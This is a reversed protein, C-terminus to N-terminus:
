DVSTTPLPQGNWPAQYSPQMAAVPVFLKQCAVVIQYYKDGSESTGIGLVWYTGASITVDAAPKGPAWYAQADLPLDGVVADATYAIGCSTDVPAPEECPDFRIFLKGGTALKGLLPICCAPEEFANSVKANPEGSIKSPQCCAAFLQAVPKAANEQAQKAQKCGYLANVSYSIDVSGKPAASAAFGSLLSVFVVLCLAKIFPSRHQRM